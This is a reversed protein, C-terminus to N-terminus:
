MKHYSHFKTPDRLLSQMFLRLNTYMLSLHKKTATPNFTQNIFRRKVHFDEGYPDLTLNFGWGGHDRVLAMGPRDANNTGRKHLVDHAVHASNLVVVQRGMINLYYIDGYQAAWETFKIWPGKPPIQLANGLIPIGKPGPLDSLSRTGRRDITHFKTWFIIGVSLCLVTSSLTKLAFVWDVNARTYLSATKWLSRLTLNQLSM